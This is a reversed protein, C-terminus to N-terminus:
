HPPFRGKCKVMKYNGFRELLGQFYDPNLTEGRFKVNTPISFCLHETVSFVDNFDLRPMKYHFEESTNRVTPQQTANIIDYQVVLVLHYEAASAGAPLPFLWQSRQEYACCLCKQIFAFHICKCVSMIGNCQVNRSEARSSPSNLEKANESFSVNVM